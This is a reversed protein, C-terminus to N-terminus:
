CEDLKRREEQIVWRAALEVVRPVKAGDEVYRRVTRGDIGLHRAMQLQSVHGDALLKKFQRGTM